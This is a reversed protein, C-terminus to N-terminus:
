WLEPLIIHFSRKFTQYFWIKYFELGQLEISSQTLSFKPARILTNLDIRLLDISLM